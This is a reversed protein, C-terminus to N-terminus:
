VARRTDLRHRGAPVGDVVRRRGHFRGLHRHTTRNGLLRRSGDHCSLQRGVAADVLSAVAERREIENPFRLILSALSDIVLRKAGTEIIKRNIMELVSAMAFEGKSVSISSAGVSVDKSVFRVVTADIISLKGEKELPELELGMRAANWRLQNPDEDLSVFVGPEEYKLVGNILFQFGFSTKGSGPGGLVLVAYGRPIGLGELLEDVGEIGTPAFHSKDLETALM